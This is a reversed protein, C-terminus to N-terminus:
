SYRPAAKSRTAACPKRRAFRLGSPRRWLTTRPQRTVSWSAGLPVARAAGPDGARRVAHTPEIGRPRKSRGRPSGPVTAGLPVADHDALARASITSRRRGGARHRGSGTEGGGRSRRLPQGLYYLPGPASGYALALPIGGGTSGIGRAGEGPPEAEDGTTRRTPTDSPPRTTQAAQLLRELDRERELAAELLARYDDAAPQTPQPPTARAERPPLDAQTFTHTTGTACSRALRALRSVDALSQGHVSPSVQLGTLAVLSVLWCQRRTM